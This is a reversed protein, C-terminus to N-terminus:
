GERASVDRRGVSGSVVQVPCLGLDPEQARRCRRGEGGSRLGLRRSRWKRRGDGRQNANSIGIQANTGRRFPQGPQLSPRKLSSGEGPVFRIRAQPGRRESNTMRGCALPKARSDQRIPRYTHSHLM